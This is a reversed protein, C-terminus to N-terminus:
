AGVGPMVDPLRHRALIFITPNRLAGGLPLGGIPDGGSAVRFDRQTEIVDSESKM